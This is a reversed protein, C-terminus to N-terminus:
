LLVLQFIFFAVEKFINKAVKFLNQDWKVLTSESDSRERLLLPIKEANQVYRRDVLENNNIYKRYPIELLKQRKTRKKGPQKLFESQQL